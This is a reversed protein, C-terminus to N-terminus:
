CSSRASCEGLKLQHTIIERGGRPPTNIAGRREGGGCECFLRQAAISAATRLDSTCRKRVLPHDKAKRYPRRCSSDLEECGGPGSSPWEPPCRRRSRSPAEQKSTSAHVLGRPRWARAEVRGKHDVTTCSAFDRRPRHTPSYRADTAPSHETLRTDARTSNRHISAVAGMALRATLVERRWSGQSRLRRRRRARPPLRGKISPRARRMACSSSQTISGVSRRFTHRSERGKGAPVKRIEKGGGTYPAGAQAGRRGGAMPGKGQPCGDRQRRLNACHRNITLRMVVGAVRVWSGSWRRGCTPDKGYFSRQTGQAHSGPWSGAPLPTAPDGCRRRAQRSPVVPERRVSGSFPGLYKAQLCERTALERPRTAAPM